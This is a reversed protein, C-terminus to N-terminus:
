RAHRKARAAVLNTRGTERRLCGCSRTVGNRLSSINVEAQNGCKCDCLWVARGDRTKGTRRVATLLGFPLGTVDALPPAM